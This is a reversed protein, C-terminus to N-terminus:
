DPVVIHRHKATRLHILADYANTAEGLRYEEGELELLLRLVDRTADVDEAVRVPITVSAPVTSKELEKEM